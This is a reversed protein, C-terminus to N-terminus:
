INHTNRRRRRACYNDYYYIRKFPKAILESQCVHLPFPWVGRFTGDVIVACTNNVATICNFLLLSIINFIISLNNNNNYKVRYFKENDRTGYTQNWTFYPKYNICIFVIYISLYLAKSITTLFLLLLIM